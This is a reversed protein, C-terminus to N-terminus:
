KLVTEYNYKDVSGRMMLLAIIMLVSGLGFLLWTGILVIGTFQGAVLLIVPLVLFMSRQQAEEMTQAKASGRVILIIAILSIAPSILLMVFLWNINPLMMRGATLLVEVEVVVMMVAFSVFSVIMSMLFSAMVKAQFIQKLSLPCYLLTELTNKEKEGVFSSAAMVSAAMIPIMLFFMPMISNMVLGIVLEDLDGVQQEMPLLDLLQKIDNSEEPAFQVALIFITPLVTTLVLPVILITIFLQRNATIGKLDKKILVGQGARIM